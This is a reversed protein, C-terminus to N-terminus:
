CKLNNGVLIIVPSKAPLFKEQLYSAVRDSEQLLEQYTHTEEGNKYCIKEPSKLATTTIKEIIANM